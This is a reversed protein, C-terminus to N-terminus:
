LADSPFFPRWRLFLRATLRVLSVFFVGLVSSLLIAAFVLDVRQQTRASDIVGGLGGGAMFEGVISGVVALGSSIQLGSFVSSLSSPIQLFRLTQMKSAGLAQFLEKDGSSVNGLGSLSSALVPFFSVILASARVTAEGFGFWIVLLPALAIVPVTQFFVAFPLFARKLIPFSVFVLATLIGLVSSLAFGIATSRFTSMTASQFDTANEILAAVVQGPSPLLYDPVWTSQVVLSWLGVLILLALFPPWAKM